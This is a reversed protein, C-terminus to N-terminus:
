RKGSRPSLSQFAVGLAGVGRSSDPSLRPPWLRDASCLSESSSSFEAAEPCSLPAPIHSGPFRAPAAMAQCQKEKLTLM